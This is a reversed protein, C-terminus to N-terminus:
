SGAEGPTGATAGANTGAATVAAAALLTGTSRRYWGALERASLDVRERWALAQAAADDSVHKVMRLAVGLERCAAAVAFGEMDVLDARRGLLERQQEDAVFSDGTALVSGDGVQGLTSLAITDDPVTGMARMLEANVDRNLVTSPRFLGGAGDRLAGCSGLNVVVLGERQQASPARELIARTTVVAARSMGIGTLVVDTGEPLHATEAPHAAIVLERIM